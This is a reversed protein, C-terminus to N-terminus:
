PTRTASGQLPGVSESIVRVNHKDEDVQGVGEIADRLPSDERSNASVEKPKVSAIAVVGIQKNAAREDATLNANLLAVGRPGDRKANASWGQTVAAARTASDRKGPSSSQLEKKRLSPTIAPQDGATWCIRVVGEKVNTEANGAVLSLHDRGTRGNLIERRM